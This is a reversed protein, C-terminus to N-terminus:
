GAKLSEAAEDIAASLAAVIADAHDYSLILPPAFLMHDGRLHDVTGRSGLAV